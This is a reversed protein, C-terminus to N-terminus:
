QCWSSPQFRWELSTPMWTAADSLRPGILAGIMPFGVWVVYVALSAGMYHGLSLVPLRGAATRKRAGAHSLWWSEDCMFPLAPLAQRKPLHQLCPALAAGMLIHRSNILLTVATILLIPSPSAWM